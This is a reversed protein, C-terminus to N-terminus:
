MAFFITPASNAFCHSTWTEYAMPTAFGIDTLTEVKPVPFILSAARPSM